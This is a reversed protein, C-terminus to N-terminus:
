NVMINTNYQKIFCILLNQGSEQQVIEHSLPNNSLESSQKIVRTLSNEQLVSLKMGILCRIDCAHQLRLENVTQKM